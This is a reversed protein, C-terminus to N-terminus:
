SKKSQKKGLIGGALLGLAVTMILGLAGFRLLASGNVEDERISVSLYNGTADADYGATMDMARACFAELSVRIGEVMAEATAYEAAGAPSQSLQAIAYNNTSIYAKADSALASHDEAKDAFADVGAKARSMYFEGDDDRTPILVITTMDREYMDITELYIHYSATNKDANKDKILNLYSLKSLQQDVTNSLGNVLVYSELRELEVKGLSDVKAALAEFTEGSPGTYKPSEEACMELYQSVDDIYKGLLSVKDLYDLQELREFDLELVHTKREYTQRFAHYFADAVQQVVQDGNLHQTKKTASFRLVYETSVYFHEASAYSGAELPAVSLAERLEAPTLQGMEGERIATQLVEDSIIDYTNFRTGNPNLGRSAEAYSLSITATGEMSRGTQWLLFFGATYVAALVLAPIWTWKLAGRYGSKDSRKKGPDRTLLLIGIIAIVAPLALLVYKLTPIM